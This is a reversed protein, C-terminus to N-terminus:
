VFSSAYKEDESTMGASTRYPNNSAAPIEKKNRVRGIDFMKIEDFFKSNKAVFSLLNYVMSDRMYPAEPNVPNQLSYLNDKNVGFL